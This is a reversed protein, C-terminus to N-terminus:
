LSEIRELADDSVVYSLDKAIAPLIYLAMLLAGLQQYVAFVRVLIGATRLGKSHGKKKM